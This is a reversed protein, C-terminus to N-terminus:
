QLKSPLQTVQGHLAALTDGTRQARVDTGFKLTAASEFRRIMLCYSENVMVGLLEGTKSFVLDGRSPNFQGFLGRLFSRDLQVYRPVQPDIQFRCEGYYGQRAGVLVCDQFKYPDSSIPYVKGGLQKAETATLPVWVVRPDPWMFSLSRIPVQTNGRRLSGTISAWDTGPNGLTLPTDQVHCLAYTNTGDTVMVTYTQEQRNADGLFGTRYASFRAALRNTLFENFIMNPTMPRNERIEQVLESSRSALAKMNEALRVREERQLKVEEAMRAVQEVAHKREVEAVKLQTVLKQRE